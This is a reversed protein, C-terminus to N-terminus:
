LVFTSFFFNDSLRTQTKAVGHVTAWWAGRDLCSYQLPNGHGGGAMDGGSGQRAFLKGQVMKRSEMYIHAHQKIVTPLHSSAMGLVQLITIHFFQPVLASNSKGQPETIFFGGALTPLVPQIGPNPLHEPSLFPLGSWYEQRLFGISLPAQRAVAGPTM